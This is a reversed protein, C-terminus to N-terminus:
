PVAVRLCALVQAGVEKGQGALGLRRGRSLLPPHTWQGPAWAAASESASGLASNAAATAAGGPEDGAGSGPRLAQSERQPESSSVRPGPLAQGHGCTRPQM